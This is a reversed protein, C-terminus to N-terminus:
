ALNTKIKLRETIVYKNKQYYKILFQIFFIQYSLFRNQIKKVILVGKNIIIHFIYFVLYNLFNLYMNFIVNIKITKIIGNLM